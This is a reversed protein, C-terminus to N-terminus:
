TFHLSESISFHNLPHCVPPQCEPIPIIDHCTAHPLPRDTCYRPLRAHCSSTMYGSITATPIHSHDMAALDDIHSSAYYFSLFFTTYHMISLRFPYEPHRTCLMVGEKLRSDWHVFSHSFSCLQSNGLMPTQIFFNEDDLDKKKKAEILEPPWKKSTLLEKQLTKASCYLITTAYWVGQPDPKSKGRNPYQYTRPEARTRAM